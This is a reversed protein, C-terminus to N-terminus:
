IRPSNKNQKKFNGNLARQLRDCDYYDAVNFKWGHGNEAMEDKCYGNIPYMLYGGQFVESELFWALKHATGENNDDDHITKEWTIHTAAVLLWVTLAGLLFKNM